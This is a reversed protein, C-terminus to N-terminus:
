QIKTTRIRYAVPESTGIDYVWVDLQYTTAALLRFNGIEPNDGTGMDAYCAGPNPACASGDGLLLGIDLDADTLWEVEVLM